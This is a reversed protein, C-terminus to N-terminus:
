RQWYALLRAPDDVVLSAGAFDADPWHGGCRLAISAVGARRAAEIDYPTDGVMVARGAPVGARSLAARVIDPAPKSEKADDKSSRRPILDAVGARELLARMERDDASTAVVVRKKLGVLYAILARGGPTPELRPLREAFLAQKRHVIARADASDEDLHAITALVKDGGMGVLPRVRAADCPIGHERFAQAWTDAHAGNSDILTGDIDVLCAAIDALDTSEVGVDLTDVTRRIRSVVFAGAAMGGVLAGITLWTTNTGGIRAPVARFTRFVTAFSAVPSLSRMSGDIPRWLGARVHRTTLDIRNGIRRRTERIEEKLNDITQRDPAHTHSTGALRDNSAQAM